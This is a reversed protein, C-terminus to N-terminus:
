VGMQGAEGGGTTVAPGSLESSSTAIIVTIGHGHVVIAAHENRASELFRTIKAPAWDLGVSSNVDEHGAVGGASRVAPGPAEAGAKRFIPLADARILHPVDLDGAVEGVRDVEAPAHEGGFASMVHEDDTEIRCALVAPGASM